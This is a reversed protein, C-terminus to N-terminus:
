ISTRSCVQIKTKKNAIYLDFKVNECDPLPVKIMKKQNKHQIELKNVKIKFRKDIDMKECILFSFNKLFWDEHIKLANQYYLCGTNHNINIM